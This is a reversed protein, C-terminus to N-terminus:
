DWWIKSHSCSRKTKQHAALMKRLDSYPQGYTSPIYPPPDEAYNTFFEWYTVKYTHTNPRNTFVGISLLCHNSALFSQHFPL